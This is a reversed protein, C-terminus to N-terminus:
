AMYRVAFSATFFPTKSWGTYVSNYGAGGCSQSTGTGRNLHDSDRDAPGKGGYPVGLRSSGVEGGCRFRLVNRRVLHRVDTWKYASVRCSQGHPRARRQRGALLRRRNRQATRTSGPGPPPRPLPGPQSLAARRATRGSEGLDRRGRRGPRFPAGPHAGVRTGIRGGAEIDATRILVASDLTRTGHGDRGVLALVGSYYPRGEPRCRAITKAASELPRRPPLEQWPTGRTRREQAETM